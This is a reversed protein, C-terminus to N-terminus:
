QGISKTLRRNPNNKSTKIIDLTEKSFEQKDAQYFQLPAIKKLAQFLEEVSGFETQSLGQIEKRVTITTM